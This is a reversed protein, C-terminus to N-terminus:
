GNNKSRERLAAEAEERTLFVTKGIENTDFSYGGYTCACIYNAYIGIYAIELELLNISLSSVAVWVTDGVKCPLEVFCAKNKFDGCLGDSNIKYEEFRRQDIECINRRFDSCVEHHFCDRCTMDIDGKM